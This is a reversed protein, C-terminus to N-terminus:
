DLRAPRSQAPGLQHRQRRNRYFYRNACRPAGLPKGPHLGAARLGPRGEQTLISLLPFGVFLAHEGHDNYYDSADATIERVKNLIRTQRESANKAAKQEDSWESEPYDPKKFFPVKAPFEISKGPNALLQALAGSAPDTGLLHKLELFDIRQRSGHPRANLGPGSTLSAYLRQLMTQLIM